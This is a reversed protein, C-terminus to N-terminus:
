LGFFIMMFIYASIVRLRIRLWRVRQNGRSTQARRWGEHCWGWSGRQIRMARGTVKALYPFNSNTRSQKMCGDVQYLFLLDQQPNKLCYKELPLCRGMLFRYFIVEFSNVISLKLSFGLCFIRNRELSWRIKVLMQPRYRLFLFILNLFLYM